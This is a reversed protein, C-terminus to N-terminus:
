RGVPAAPLEPRQAMLMIAAITARSVEAVLRHNIVELVDHPQHYHPNGLIPYSGIGGIIDGYQDWFAQADTGRVYRADYTILDSFQIAAAHQVDRIWDNSYRITNDLRHSRTWGVMDNNIVGEIRDGAAVARRVLDRAGLLGAEEANLFAFRITGPQPRNALVRAAELLATTGSTNDDAGPSGEVSDFHSSILYIRDPHTSGRLTAVVNAVRVGPRPEFWQLEPEYGMQRLANALYEVALANGPASFYKPGFQYLAHAHDYVRGADVAQTASRVTSAIPEFMQQGRQRLDREAALNRRVRALVEDRTVRRNLDVLYVGREPSLTDGDRDAVVLVRTGDPSAVWEYQPAVTRLTNNDFVRTRGRQDDGPLPMAAVDALHNRDLDYLYARRHRAEGMVAMLQTESVFQPFLDHQIDRTLRQEGTGDADILFIEWDDRLVTNYAVRRGSPSVAPSALPLTTTKLAVPAATGDLRLVMLANLHGNARVDAGVRAEGRRIEPEVERATALYVLTSGDASVAPSNGQIDRQEGTRLHHVVLRDRDITYILREAGAAMITAGKIGAGETLQRPAGREPLLFLDTRDDQGARRGILIVTGDGAYTLALKQLDTAMRERERGSALERVVVRGQTAELRAIEPRVRRLTVVDGAEVARRDEERAAALAPTERIQLYAISRGDPSFVAGRGNLVAMERADNGAVAVVRTRLDAGAGTELAVHRGTSSWLVRRGDPAVERTRYLEGTLLALRDLLPESAPSALLREAYQLSNVYDGRDWAFYVSDFQAHVAAPLVQSQAVGPTAPVACILMILVSSTCFSGVSRVGSRGNLRM